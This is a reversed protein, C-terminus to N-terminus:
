ERRAIDRGYIYRAIDQIIAEYERTTKSEPLHIHLDVRIQPAAVASLDASRGEAGVTATAPTPTAGAQVDLNAHECLAKFTQIQFEITQRAGGSHINFLSRLAETSDRQPALSAEFLKKYTERIRGALVAPGTQAAMFEAYHDTPTGDPSVLGVARLVRIVSAANSDTIGWSRLTDM